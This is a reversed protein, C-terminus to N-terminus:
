PEFVPAPEVDHPLPYAMLKDALETTVSFNAHIRALWKPDPKLGCLKLASPVYASSVDGHVSLSVHASVIKWNGDIHVWTQSQRGRRDVGNVDAVYEFMVSAYSEGFTTIALKAPTRKTFNVVRGARFASIEDYGYLEEGAGFRVSEPSEWFFAQLAPVDNRVLAREYAEFAKEVAKVAGPNNIPQNM